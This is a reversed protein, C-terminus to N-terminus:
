KALFLNAFRKFFSPKQGKKGDSAAQVAFQPMDDAAQIFTELPRRPNYNVVPDAYGIRLIYQARSHDVGIEDHMRLRLEPVECPQNLTSVSLGNAEAFLLVRMFAQGAYLRDVMGGKESGLIALVPCGQAIENDQVVHGPATEFRRLIRPKSSRMVEKFPRAYDPYGDGSVFRRRNIWSALERRFNKKSMQIQDGEAIFHAVIDREEGECVHLWANEKKAAEKLGMLLDTPVPKEKYASRNIHRSAIAKFLPDEKTPASGAESVQVRAMLDEDAPNPLLQTFEQLGFHRLALRLNFLASGCSMVLQRDDPDVVPLAHRRDAYVGVTDGDIIFYWPQNNYTSHALIAYRLCFEIKEQLSGNQPFDQENVEWNKLNRNM